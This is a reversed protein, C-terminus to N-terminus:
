KESVLGLARANNATRTFKQRTFEPEYVEYLNASAGSFGPDGKVFSENFTFSLDTCWGDPCSSPYNGAGSPCIIDYCLTM